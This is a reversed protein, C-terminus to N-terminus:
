KTIFQYSGPLASKKVLIYNELIYEDNEDACRDSCDNTVSVSYVVTNSFGGTVEVKRELSANCPVKKPNAFIIYQSYDVPVKTMGGDFSVKYRDFYIHNEDITYDPNNSTQYGADPIVIVDNAGDENADAFVIAAGVYTEDVICSKKCSSFSGATLLLISIGLVRKM